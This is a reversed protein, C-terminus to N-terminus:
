IANALATKVATTVRDRLPGRNMIGNRGCIPAFLTGGNCEGVKLGWLRASRLCVVVREGEEAQPFLVSQAWDVAVRSSPLATLMHWDNFTKSHYAGVNLVAIKDAASDPDVDFQRVIRSWWIYAPEHQASSPLKGTGDRQGKYYARGEDSDAHEKDIPKYGPSLFLLVVPAHKLPGFFTIPLCKNEFRNRVRKFVKLDDPHVDADDAIRSWFEFIDEQVDGRAEM